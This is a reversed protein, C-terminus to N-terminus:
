CPLCSFWNQHIAANGLQEFASRACNFIWGISGLKLMLDFVLTVWCALLELYLNQCGRMRLFIFFFVKKYDAAFKHSVRQVSWGHAWILVYHPLYRMNGVLIGWSMFWKVHEFLCFITRHSSFFFLTCCCNGAAIKRMKIMCVFEDVWFNNVWNLVHFKPHLILIAFRTKIMLLPLFNM